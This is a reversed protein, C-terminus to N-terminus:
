ELISKAWPDIGNTLLVEKYKELYLRLGLEIQHSKQVRDLGWVFNMAEIYVPPLSVNMRVTGTKKKDKM